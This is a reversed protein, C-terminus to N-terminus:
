DVGGDYNNFAWHRERCWWCDRCPGERDAICSVTLLSLPLIDLSKYQDAIDKKTLHAFPWALPNKQQAILYQKQNMDGEGVPRDSLDMGQTVSYIFVQIKYRRTLYEIAHDLYNTTVHDTPQKRFAVIHPDCIKVNPYEQRVYQVIRDVAEFSRATTRRIDYGHIPYIEMRHSQKKDDIMKALRFLTLASDAGGSLYLGM